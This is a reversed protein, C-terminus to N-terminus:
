ALAAQSSLRRGEFVSGLYGAMYANRCLQLSGQCFLLSSPRESPEHDLLSAFSHAKTNGTKNRTYARVRTRLSWPIVCKQRRLFATIFAERYSSNLERTEHWEYQPGGWVWPVTQMKIFDKACQLQLLSGKQHMPKLQQDQLPDPNLGWCGHPPEHNDIVGTGPYGIGRAERPVAHVRHM